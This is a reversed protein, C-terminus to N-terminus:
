SLRSGSENPNKGECSVTEPMINMVGVSNKMGNVALPLMALRIAVTTGVVATAWDGGTVNVCVFQMTDQIAGSLWWSCAVGRGRRTLSHVRVRVRVRVRVHVHVLSEVFWVSYANLVCILPSSPSTGESDSCLANPFLNPSPSICWSAAQLLFAASAFACPSHSSHTSLLCAAWSV